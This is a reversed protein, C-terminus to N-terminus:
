RMMRTKRLFWSDYLVLGLSVLFAMIAALLTMSGGYRNYQDLCWVGFLVALIASLLILVAHVWRLNM